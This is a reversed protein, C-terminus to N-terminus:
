AIGSFKPSFRLFKDPIQAYFSFFIGSRQSAAPLSLIAPKFFNSQIGAKAPIVSQRNREPNWVNKKWKGGFASL